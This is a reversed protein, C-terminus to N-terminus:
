PVLVIEMKRIRHNNGEVVYVNGASDVAIGTPVDFRATAGPGDAFGGTNGSGFGGSGALTTVLGTPSIM